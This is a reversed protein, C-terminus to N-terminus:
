LLRDRRPLDPIDLSALGSIGTEGCFWRFSSAFGMGDIPRAIRLEDPLSKATAYARNDAWSHYHPGTVIADHIDKPRSLPNVHPPDDACCLRWIARERTLIIRFKISDSWPYAKVELAFGSLEGGVAVNVRWRSADNQDLQWDSTGVLSKEAALFRDVIVRIDYRDAPPEV